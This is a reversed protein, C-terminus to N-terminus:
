PSRGTPAFAVAIAAAVGAHMALLVLVGVVDVALVLVAGGVPAVSVLLGLALLRLFAPYPDATTRDLRAYLAGAVVAAGAPVLVPGAADPAYISPLSTLGTGARLVLGNVLVAGALALASRGLTWRVSRGSRSETTETTM